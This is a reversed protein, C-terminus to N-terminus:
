TGELNTKIRRKTFFYPGCQSEHTNVYTWELGEDMIYIDDELDFDRSKLTEIHDVLYTSDRHQYFIYARQKKKRTFAARAKPGILGDLVGYSFSHWLFDSFYISTKTAEDIESAFAHEWMDKLTQASFECAGFVAGRSNLEKFIKAKEDKWLQAKYCGIAEAVVDLLDHRQQQQIPDTLERIKKRERGIWDFADDNNQTKIYYNPM